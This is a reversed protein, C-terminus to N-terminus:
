KYFQKLVTLSVRNGDVRSVSRLVAYYSKGLYCLSSYEIISKHVYNYFQDQCDIKQGYLHM